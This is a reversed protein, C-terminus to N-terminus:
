ADPGKGFVYLVSFVLSRICLKFSAGIGGWKVKAESSMVLKYV